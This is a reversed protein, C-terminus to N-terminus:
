YGERVHAQHIRDCHRIQFITGLIYGGVLGLVVSFLGVLICIVVIM